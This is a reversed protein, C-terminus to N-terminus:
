VLDVSGAPQACCGSRRLATAGRAEWVGVCRMASCRNRRTRRRTCGRSGSHPITNNTQKNNNSNNYRTTTTSTTTITTTSTTTTTTTTCWHMEARCREVQRTEVGIEANEHAIRARQMMHADNSKRMLSTHYSHSSLSLSLSKNVNPEITLRKEQIQIVRQHQVNAYQAGVILDERRAV